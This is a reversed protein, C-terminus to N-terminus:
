WSAPASVGAAGVTPPPDAGRFPSVSAWLLLASTLVERLAATTSAVIPSAATLAHLLLLVPLVAPLVVLLVGLLAALLEFAGDADADVAAAPLELAAALLQTLPDSM